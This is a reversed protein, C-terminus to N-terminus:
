AWDVLATIDPRYQMNCSQLCILYTQINEDPIFYSGVCATPYRWERKQSGVWQTVHSYIKSIFFLRIKEGRRMASMAEQTYLM